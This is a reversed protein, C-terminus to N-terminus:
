HAVMDGGVDRRGPASQDLPRAGHLSMVTNPNGGQMGGVDQNFIGQSLSVGPILAGMSQYTKATPITEIVERTM